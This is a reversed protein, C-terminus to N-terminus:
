LILRFKITPVNRFTVNQDPKLLRLAAEAAHYAALIVDAKRGDVKKDKSSGVVFTHAAVAIFGDVHCGLDSYFLIKNKNNQNSIFHKFHLKVNEISWWGQYHLRSREQTTFLPLYLQQSIHMNPICYREELEEREQISKRDRWCTSLWRILVSDYSFCWWCVEWYSGEVGRLYIWLNKKKTEFWFWFNYFIPYESNTIESAMNYKTVVIDDAITTPAEQTDEDVTSYGDSM